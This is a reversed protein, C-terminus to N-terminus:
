RQAAPKDRCAPCCKECFYGTRHTPLHIFVPQQGCMNCYRDAHSVQYCTAPKISKAGGTPKTPEGMM